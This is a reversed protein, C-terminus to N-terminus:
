SPYIGVSSQKLHKTQTERSRVILTSASAKPLMSAPRKDDGTQEGTPGSTADDPAEGITSSPTIPLTQETADEKRINNRGVNNNNAM